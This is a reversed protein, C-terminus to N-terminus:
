IGECLVGTLQITFRNESGLNAAMHPTDYRWVVYDGAKWDVISGNVELIHGYKRDEVCFIYRVISQKRDELNYLEIYKSYLDNHYPLNDGPEMCYYSIGVNEISRENAWKTLLETTKPQDAHRMDFLQGTRPSFGQQKWINMQTTDNFEERSYSLSKIENVDWYRNPDVYGKMWIWDIAKNM